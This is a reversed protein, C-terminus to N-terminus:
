QLSYRMALYVGFFTSGLLTTASKITDSKDASWVLSIIALGVLFLLIKDRSVIWAFRGPRILVFWVPVLYLVVVLFFQIDVGGIVFIKWLPRTMIFLTMVAYMKELINVPNKKVSILEM